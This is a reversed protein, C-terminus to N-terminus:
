DDLEEVSILTVDCGMMRSLQAAEDPTNWYEGIGLCWALANTLDNSNNIDTVMAYDCIWDPHIGGIALIRGPSGHVARAPRIMETHGASLRAAKLAAWGSDGPAESWLIPLLHM